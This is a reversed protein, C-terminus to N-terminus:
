LATVIDNTSERKFIITKAIKLINVGTVTVNEPKTKNEAVINEKYTSIIPNLKNRLINNM